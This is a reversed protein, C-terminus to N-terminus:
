GPDWILDPESVLHKSVATAVKGSLFGMPMRNTNCQCQRPLSSKALLHHKLGHMFDTGQLCKMVVVFLTINYITWLM